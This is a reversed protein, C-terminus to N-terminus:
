RPQLPMSPSVNAGSYPACRSLRLYKYTAYPTYPSQVPLIVIILYNQAIIHVVDLTKCLRQILVRRMMDANILRILLQEGVGAVGGIAHLVHSYSGIVPM